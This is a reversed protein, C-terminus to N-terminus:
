NTPFNISNNGLHMKRLCNWLVVLNLIKKFEIKWSIPRAIRSQSRHHFSSISDELSHRPHRAFHFLTKEDRKPDLSRPKEETLQANHGIHLHLTDLTAFTSFLWLNPISIQHLRHSYNNSFRFWRNWPYTFISFYLINNLWQFHNHLYNTGPNEISQIINNKSHGSIKIKVIFLQHLNIYILKLKSDM